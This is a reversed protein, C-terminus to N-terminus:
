NAGSSNSQQTLFPMEEDAIYLLKEIIAPRNPQIHEGETYRLRRPEGASDFLLEAQGAPTREDNRAGVILVPRPSVASITKGTDFVPGYALWYLVSGLPYHLFENDSRRAIQTELWLRTDAAGHVLMLSTIRQDRAAAITAFPVGLSAGVIVIKEKDVWDQEVLWDLALSVAPVVDLIARRAMPITKAIPVVGKVSEPGDYPYDIGVVARDSVEGFLEVSDSGTRHGGLVLLLPVKGSAGADRIVRFFVELGSDSKLSVADSRQGDTTATETVVVTEIQGHRANFWDDRPRGADWRLWTLPLAIALVIILLFFKLVLRVRAVTNM